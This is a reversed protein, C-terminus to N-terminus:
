IIKRMKDKIKGVIHAFIREGLDKTSRHDKDIERFLCYCLLAEDLKNKYLYYVAVNHYFGRIETIHYKNEKNPKILYIDLKGGYADFIKDEMDNYKYYDALSIKAFLYDPFKKITKLITEYQQERNGTLFYYVTIYNYISPVNPYIKSLDILRKLDVPNKSELDKYITMIEDKIKQPLLAWNKDEMVDYSVFFDQSLPIYKKKMLNKIIDNKSIKDLHKEVDINNSIVDKLIEFENFYRM